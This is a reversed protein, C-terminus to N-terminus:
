PRARPWPRVFTKVRMLCNARAASGSAGGVTMVLMQALSPILLFSFNRALNVLTVRPDKEIVEEVVKRTRDRSGDNVFVIELRDRLPELEKDITDIFAQISEEENFVPVVLSLTYEKKKEM